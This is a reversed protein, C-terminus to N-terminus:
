RNWQIGPLSGNDVLSRCIIEQKRIRESLIFQLRRGEGTWANAYKIGSRKALYAAFQKWTYNKTRIGCINDVNCEAILIGEETTSIVCVSHGNNGTRIHTAPPCNMLKAKVNAATCQNASLTGTLNKYNSPEEVDYCGYVIWQCYRAFGFCQSSKLDVQCTEPDGTPWYRLCNCRRDRTSVCIDHEHCTGNAFARTACSKGDETFYDGEAYGIDVGGIVINTSKQTSAQTSAQATGMCLDTLLIMMALLLAATKKM